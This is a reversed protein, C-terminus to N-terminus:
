YQLTEGRGAHGLEGARRGPRTGKNEWGLAADAWQALQWTVGGGGVRAARFVGSSHLANQQNSAQVSAYFSVPQDRLTKRDRNTRLEAKHGGKM